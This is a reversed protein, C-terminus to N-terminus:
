KTIVSNRDVMKGNSSPPDTHVKHREVKENEAM